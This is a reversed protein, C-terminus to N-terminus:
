LHRMPQLHHHLIASPLFRHLAPLTSYLDPLNCRRLPVLVKYVQTSCINIIYIRKESLFLTFIMPTMANTKVRKEKLADLKKGVFDNSSPINKLYKDAVNDAFKKPDDNIKKIAEIKSQLKKKTNKLKSM